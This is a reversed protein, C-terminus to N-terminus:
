LFLEGQFGLNGETIVLCPLSLLIFVLCFFLFLFRYVLWLSTVGQVFVLPPNKNQTQKEKKEGFSFFFFFPSYFFLSNAISLTQQSM